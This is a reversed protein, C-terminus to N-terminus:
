GGTSTGGILHFVNCLEQLSTLPPRGDSERKTNEEPMPRHMVEKIMLLKPLGPIDGGDAVLYCCTCVTAVSGKGLSTLKM